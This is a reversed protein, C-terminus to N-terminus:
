PGVTVTLIDSYEGVPVDAKRYRLRYRRTEAQGATQPPRNDVYPSQSDFALLTWDTETGRQSEVDVGDFGRKVFSVEAAYNPLAKVTGTPKAEPTSIESGIVRLDEGIVENYAPHTKIRAVLKRTRSIVNPPVPTASPSPPVPLTPTAGDPGFLELNKFKVWKNQEDKFSLVMNIVVTVIAADAIVANVEATTLGFTTAYGPLKAAFNTFWEPLQDEDMKLYDRKAM